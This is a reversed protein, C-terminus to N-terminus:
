EGAPAHKRWLAAIVMWCVWAIVLGVLGFGIMVPGFGGGEATSHDFLGALGGFTGYAGCIGFGVLFMSLIVTLLGRALNNLM